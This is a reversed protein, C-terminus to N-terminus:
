QITGSTPTFLFCTNGALISPCLCLLRSADLWGNQATVPDFRVEQEQNDTFFEHVVARSPTSGYRAEGLELDGELVPISKNHTDGLSYFENQTTNPCTVYAHSHRSPTTVLQQVVWDAMKARHTFYDSWLKVRLYGGFSDFVLQDPSYLIGFYELALLIDSGICEDPIRITGTNYYARICTTLWPKWQFSHSQNTSKCDEEPLLTIAIETRPTQKRNQVDQQVQNRWERFLRSTNWRTAHIKFDKAAKRMELERDVLLSVPVYFKGNEVSSKIKVKLLTEDKVHAKLMRLSPSSSARSPTPSPAQPRTTTNQVSAIMAKVNDKRHTSAVKHSSLVRPVMSTPLSSGAGVAATTTTM